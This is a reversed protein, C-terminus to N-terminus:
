KGAVTWGSKKKKGLCYSRVGTLPGRFDLYRAVDSRPFPGPRENPLIGSPLDVLNAIVLTCADLYQKILSTVPCVIHLTSEGQIYRRPTTMKPLTPYSPQVGQYLFEFETGKYTFMDTRLFISWAQYCSQAFEADYATNGTWILSSTCQEPGITSSTNIPSTITLSGPNDLPNLPLTLGDTGTLLCAILFCSNGLLSLVGMIFIRKGCKAEHSYHLSSSFTPPHSTIAAPAHIDELASLFRSAM